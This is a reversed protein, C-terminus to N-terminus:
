KFNSKELIISYYLFTKPLDYKLMDIKYPTISSKGFVSLHGKWHSVEDFSVKAVGMKGIFQYIYQM